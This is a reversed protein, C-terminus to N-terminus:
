ELLKKVYAIQGAHYINHQIMGNLLYAFDYERYEVKEKLFANNKTQLLEILRANTDLYESVGKEWTHIKPDIKRWDLKEFAKMDDIKEKRIRRLTFDSWTIMHYILELLSHSNENPKKSTYRADVSQILAYVSQGFWPEGELTDQLEAIIMEIKDTM